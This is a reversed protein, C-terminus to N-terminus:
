NTIELGGFLVTTRITLTCTHEGGIARLMTDNSIGGFMPSGQVVVHWHQPVKIEVGAFSVDVDLSAENSAMSANRLDLEVGAFTSSIKGGRFKQSVVNSETGSFVAHIDIVEDDLQSSSTKNGLSFNHNITFKAERDKDRILFGIGWIILALPLATAWFDIKYLNDAILLGGLSILVLSGMLKNPRSILQVVGMVVFILPWWASFVDGFPIIQFRDLLFGIGLLILILGMIYRSNM